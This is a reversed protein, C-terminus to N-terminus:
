DGEAIAPVDRADGPVPGPQRMFVALGLVAIATTASVLTNGLRERLRVLYKDENM